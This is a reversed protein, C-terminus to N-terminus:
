QILGEKLQKEVILQSKLAEEGDVIPKEDNHICNIFHHICDEFGRQKLTSEWSGPFSKTVNDNAEIEMSNMNMIRIISGDTILELKELNTGAKRHMETNLTFGESSEYVHSAYMLSNENNIKLKGYVTSLEGNALWRVTDVLHLYDDLMTFEFSQPGISNTRHKEFRISAINKANEKAQIYMPSFRRNFGVMLKRSKRISLEVLKEAETVSAALPKDVYVDKGLSLLLSVVEYHTSTASHVFVADCHNALKEISDFDPIRYQSCIAKRKDKSPSFAGEFSWNTEKSLIPLYAKQAINGLGVMGIRPKKM